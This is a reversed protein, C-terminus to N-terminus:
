AESEDLGDDAAPPAKGVKRAKAPAAGESKAAAIRQRVETRAAKKAAAAEARALLAEPDANGRRKTKAEKIQISLCPFGQDDLRPRVTSQVTTSPRMTPYQELVAGYHISYTRKDKDYPVAVAGEDSEQAAHMTIVGKLKDASLTMFADLPDMGQDELYAMLIESGAVNASGLGHENVEIAAKGKRAGSFRNFQARIKELTVKETFPLYNLKRGVSSGEM